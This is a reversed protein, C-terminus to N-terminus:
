CIPTAQVSCLPQMERISNMFVLSLFHSSDRQPADDVELKSCM